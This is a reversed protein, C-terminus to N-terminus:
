DTRLPASIERNQEYIDYYHRAAFVVSSGNQIQSLDTVRLYNDQANVNLSFILCAVLFLLNRTRM